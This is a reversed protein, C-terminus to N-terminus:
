FPFYFIKRWRFGPCLARNKFFWVLGITIGMKFNREMWSFVGPVKIYWVPLFESFLRRERVAVFDGRDLDFSIGNLAHVQKGELPYKKVLDRVEFWPM